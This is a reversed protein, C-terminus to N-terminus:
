LDGWITYEAPLNVDLYKRMNNYQTTTHMALFALEDGDPKDVFLYFRRNCESNCELNGCARQQKHWENVCHAVSENCDCWIRYVESTAVDPYAIQITAFLLARSSDYIPLGNAAIQADDSFAIIRHQDMVQEALEIRNM